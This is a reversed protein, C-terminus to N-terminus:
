EEDGEDSEDDEPGDDDELKSPHSVWGANYAWQLADREGSDRGVSQMPTIQLNDRAAAYPSRKRHRTKDWGAEGIGIQVSDSPQGTVVLVVYAGDRYWSESM